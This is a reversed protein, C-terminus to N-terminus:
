THYTFLIERRFTLIHICVLFHHYFSHESCDSEHSLSPLLLCYHGGNHKAKNPAPVGFEYRQTKLM